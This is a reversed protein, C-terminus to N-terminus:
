GEVCLHHILYDSVWYKKLWTNIFIIMKGLCARSWCLSPFASLFILHDILCRTAVLEELLVETRFVRAGNKKILIKLHPHHNERLRCPWGAHCTASQDM